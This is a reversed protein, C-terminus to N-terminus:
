ARTKNETVHGASRSTLFAIGLNFWVVNEITIAVVVTLVLCIFNIKFVNVHIMHGM